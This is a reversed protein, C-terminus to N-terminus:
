GAAPLLNLQEPNAEARLRRWVYLREAVGGELLWIEEQNQVSQVVAEVFILFFLARIERVEQEFERQDFEDERSYSYEAGGRQGAAGVRAGDGAM